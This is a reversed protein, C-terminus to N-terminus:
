KLSSGYPNFLIIYIFYNSLTRRVDIHELLLFIIFTKLWQVLWGSKGYKREGAGEGASDPPTVTIIIMLLGLQLALNLIYSLDMFHSSPLYSHLDRKPLIDGNIVTLAQGLNRTGFEKDWIGRGSQKEGIKM